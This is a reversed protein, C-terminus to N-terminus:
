GSLHGSKAFTGIFWNHPSVETRPWPLGTILSAADSCLWAVPEAIEEPAGPRGIPQRTLIIAKDAAERGGVLQQVMPTDIIGPCVANFCFYPVSGVFRVFGIRHTYRNGSKGRLQARRARPNRKQHDKTSKKKPGGRGKTSGRRPGPSDWARIEGHVSPLISPTPTPRRRRRTFAVPSAIPKRLTCARM